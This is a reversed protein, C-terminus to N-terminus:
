SEDDTDPSGNKWEEGIEDKLESEEEEDGRDFEDGWVTSAYFNVVEGPGNIDVDDLMFRVFSKDDKDDRQHEPIWALIDERSFDYKEKNKILWSKTLAEGVAREEYIGREIIDKFYFNHKNKIEEIEKKNGLTILENLTNQDERLINEFRSLVRGSTYTELLQTIVEYPVRAVKEVGKTEANFWIPLRHVQLDSFGQDFGYKRNTVNLKKDLNLYFGQTTFNFKSNRLIVNGIGLFKVVLEDYGIEGKLNYIDSLFVPRVIVRNDMVLTDQSIRIPLPGFIDAVYEFSLDLPALIIKDGVNPNGIYDLFNDVLERTGAEDYENKKISRYAVGLYEVDNIKVYHPLDPVRYHGDMGNMRHAITEGANPLKLKGSLIKEETIRAINELGM